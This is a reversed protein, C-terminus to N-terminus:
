GRTVALGWVAAAGGEKLIRAIENMTAGSTVVDDFVVFRGGRVDAGPIIEFTNRVNKFRKFGKLKTQTKSSKQKRVVDMRVEGPAVKCLERAILESQNYTRWLFRRKHLPAPVIADATGLFQFCLPSQHLKRHLVVGFANALSKVGNYKLEYITEKVIENNWDLATVLGDLYARKRCEEHRQGEVSTKFCGPCFYQPYVDINSVCSECWSSGRDGCAVCEHPFVFDVVSDFLFHLFSFM